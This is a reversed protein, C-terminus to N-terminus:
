ATRHWRKVVIYPPMNNHAKSGGVPEVMDNSYAYRKSSSASWAVGSVNDTGNYNALSLKHQHSPMENISLTHEKEGGTKNITNFDVVDRDIAVLMKGKTDEVWTGGWATNPNFDSDSTEYYTGVPYFYDLFTVSEAGGVEANEVFFISNERATAPLDSRSRVVTIAASEGQRGPEGREGQRGPEGREGQRGPEGREGQRGPEGREGQIGQRGLITPVGNEDYLYHNGNAEYKVITNYYRGNEIPVSTEDGLSAPIITTILGHKDDECNEM